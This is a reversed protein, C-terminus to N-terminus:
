LSGSINQTGNSATYTPTINVGTYIIAGSWNNIIFDHTGSEFYYGFDDSPLVLNNSSFISVNKEDITGGISENLERIKCNTLMSGGTNPFTCPTDIGDVGGVAVVTRDSFDGLAGFSITYMHSYRLNYQRPALDLGRVEEFTLNNIDVVNGLSDVLILNDILVGFIFQEVPEITFPFGSVINGDNMCDTVNKNDFVINYTADSNRNFVPTGIDPCDQYAGMYDYAIELLNNPWDKSIKLYQNYTLEDTVEADDLIVINDLSFDSDSIQEISVFKADGNSDSSGGNGSGGCGAVLLTIVFYTLYTFKRTFM